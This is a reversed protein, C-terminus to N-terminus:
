PCRRPRRGSGPRTRTARGGSRGTSGTEADAECPANGQTVLRLAVLAVRGWFAVTPHAAPDSRARGLVPLAESVSMRAVLRCDNDWFAIRSERAPLAPEFVIASRSLDIARVGAVEVM